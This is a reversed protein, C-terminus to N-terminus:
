EPHIKDLLNESSERWNLWCYHEPVKLNRPIGTREIQEIQRCLSDPTSLDFYGVHEGGVERHVRTDSALVPLANSLSEIIPLGFGEVISPFVLMKAHQYCYLLEADNLDSWHNLKFTHEPHKNIRKIISNVNWGVRGVICLNVAEGKEWLREFSDLLYNHNKRLDITSVMLYTSGGSLSDKLSQRVPEYQSNTYNFDSGLLFYDYSKNRGEEGFRDTMYCELDARVTDSIAIYQDIYHVSRSFWEHFTDVLFDNCFNPHTIPILDYIVSVVQGEKEKFQAVSEWINSYWTSDILLLIDGKKIVSFDAIKEPNNAGQRGVISLIPSIIFKTILYSLGFNEKPAFLFRRFKESPHIKCILERAYLYSKSVFSALNKKALSVRSERDDHQKFNYLDSLDIPRFEGNGITVPVINLSKEVSLDQFNEIVRRVVRQIGTNLEPHHYLYTCDVFITKM